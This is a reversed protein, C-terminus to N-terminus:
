QMDLHAQICHIPVPHMTKRMPQPLHAEQTEGYGMLM